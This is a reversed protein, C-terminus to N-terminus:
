LTRDVARLEGSEQRRAEKGQMRALEKKKAQKDLLQVLTLTRGNIEQKSIQIHHQAQSAVQPFHTICLVQHKKGIQNLNEGIVVATQGGINSDIEDFVLTPTQEKGALITQISLLIRSMEGGSACERIPILNEGVNPALFFEIFDDGTSSRKQPLIKVQFEVKPMNLARLCQVISHEFEKAAHKRKETLEACLQNCRQQINKLQQDLENIQTDANELSHLKEKINHLYANIEQITTGYKRKLKNILTLRENVYQTREPNNEIHSHYQRLSYGVEQLELLASNYSKFCEQMTPDIKVLQEFTHKHRTLMQVIGQKEGSLLNLIEWSKDAREEANSLLTFEAFLDEEEGEKLRAEQLEELEMHCVEIDRLRQAEGQILANLQHRIRNEQEWERKVNAVLDNLEGFTDLIHRHNEIDQLYQNAHQGVIEVLAKGIQKLISLQATQNNIYVRNKGTSQIERRIILEEEKDHDIGADDLFKIVNPLREIDFIAEVSGKDFGKRIISSDTRDGQLLGLANMIASKGSGTEGTLVNLGEQFSISAQEILILNQITLQKLM